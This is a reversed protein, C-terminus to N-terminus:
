QWNDSSLPPNKLYRIWDLAPMTCLAETSQGGYGYVYVVDIDSARQAIGEEIIKAGM